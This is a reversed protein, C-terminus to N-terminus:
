QAPAAPQEELIAVNAGVNETAPPCCLMYISSIM